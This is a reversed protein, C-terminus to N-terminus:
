GSENAKEELAKLEKRKEELEIAYRRRRRENAIATQTAQLEVIAAQAKAFEDDLYEKSKKKLDM